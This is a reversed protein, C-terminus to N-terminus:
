LVATPRDGSGTVPALEEDADRELAEPPPVASDHFEPVVRWLLFTQPAFLVLYLLPTAARKGTGISLDANGSRAALATLPGRLSHPPALSRSLVSM